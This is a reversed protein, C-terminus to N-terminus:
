KQVPLYMNLIRMAAENYGVGEIDVNNRMRSLLDATESPIRQGNPLVYNILATYLQQRRAYETQSEGPEKDSPNYPPINIQRQQTPVPQSLTVVPAPM